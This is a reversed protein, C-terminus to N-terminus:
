TSITVTGGEASTITLSVYVIGADYTKYQNNSDRVELRFSASSTTGSASSKKITPSFNQNIYLYPVIGCRYNYTGDSLKMTQNGQSVTIRLQDTGYIRPQVGSSFEGPEFTGSITSTKTSGDSYTETKTYQADAFIQFRPNNVYLIDTTNSSYIFESTANYTSVVINTLSKLSYTTSTVTPEPKEGLRRRFNDM